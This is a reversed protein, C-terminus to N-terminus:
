YKYIHTPKMHKTIMATPPILVPINGKVTPGSKVIHQEALNILVHLMTFYDVCTKVVSISWIQLPIQICNCFILIYNEFNWTDVFNNTAILISIAFVLLIHFLLSVKDFAWHIYLFRRNLNILGHLMIGIMFCCVLNYLIMIAFYSLALSSKVFINQIMKYKYIKYLIILSTIAVYFAEFIIITMCGGRILCSDLCCLPELKLHPAKIKDRFQLQRKYRHKVKDNKDKTDNKDKNEKMSNFINRQDKSTVLGNTTITERARIEDFNGLEAETSM